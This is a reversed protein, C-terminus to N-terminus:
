DQAPSTSSLLAVLESIETKLEEDTLEAAAVNAQQAFDLAKEQQGFEQYREAMSLTITARHKDLELKEAKALAVQYIKFDSLWPRAPAAAVAM